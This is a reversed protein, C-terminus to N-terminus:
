RGMEQKLKAVAELREIESATLGPIDPIDAPPGFGIDLLSRPPAPLPRPAELSAKLYPHRGRAWLGTRHGGCGAQRTPYHWQSYCHSQAPGAALAIVLALATRM